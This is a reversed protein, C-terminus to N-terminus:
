ASQPSNGSDSSASVAAEIEQLLQGPAIGYIQAVDGVTHFAALQCGVCGLRFRILANAAMPRRTLLTQVSWAILESSAPLQSM